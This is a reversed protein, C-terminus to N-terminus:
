EGVSFARAYRDIAESIGEVVAENPDTSSHRSVNGYLRERAAEVEPDGLVYRGVCLAINRANEAAFRERDVGKPAYKEWPADRVAVAELTEAFESPEAAVDEGALLEREREQLEVLSEVLAAAFEPGVNAAGVGLEPFRELQETPLWDTFHVKLFVDREASREVLGAAKEPDFQNKMDIRMTTGVQGVAFVVRDFVDPPLRDELRDLFRSFSDPDTLGGAIEETGVEYAVPPRGERDRLEEIGDILKVTRRAIEDLDLPEDTRPDETADVHLVDFGAEVDDQYTEMAYAMAEELSVDSNGRDRTSQYPGGHDRAVLYSGDYGERECVSDVFEVLERQSWGTYGRNGDVQRPTAVFMPFLTETAAIRITATVIEESMPCVGLLTPRDKWESGRQELVHHM